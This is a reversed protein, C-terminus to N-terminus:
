VNLNGLTMSITLKSFEIVLSLFFKLTSSSSFMKMNDKILFIKKYYKTPLIVNVFEHKVNCLLSCLRLCKVM